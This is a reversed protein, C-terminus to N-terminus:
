AKKCSEIITYLTAATDAGDISKSGAFNKRGLVSHRLAREADNNTLPLALCTLFATLQKWRGVGYDIAKIMGSSPLHKEREKLLWEYIEKVSATSEEDRLKKLDDWTKAQHEIGFLKDMLGLIETAQGPYSGRIDYFERRFHSWCNGVIIKPKEKFRNYGSFGDSLISGEYGKLMEEAIKGSRTPEFQFYTASRNCMVWLYSQNEAGIIPWTTEDLHVAVSKDNFIDERIQALVTNGHEAITRCLGYLTKVSVDLGAGEMKRRQRELPLHSEYKDTVVSIGFDVSYQCGPNLKVPGPATVIIEKDTGISPRFRYKQQKHVIKEYTREIVTIEVSDQTLGKVEDWDSAESMKFGRSLAETQLEEVAMKYFSTKPTLDGPETGDKSTTADEAQRDGHILLQQDKHNTPPRQDLKERGFGFFREQLKVYQDRLAESLFGQETTQKRAEALEKELREVAKTAIIAYTRLVEINSQSELPVM